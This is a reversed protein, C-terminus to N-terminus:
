RWGDPGRHWVTEALGHFRAGNWGRVRLLLQDEHHEILTYSQGEGARVRRSCATGSMVGIMRRGLRAQAAVHGHGCLVLDVGAREAARLARGVGLVLTERPRQPPRFVPHHLMLVKLDAAGRFAAAIRAVQRADVRGGKRLYPRASSLGAVQLAPTRVMPEPEDDVHRRYARLPWGFRGLVRYLPVDHNGPVATWPVGLEDLLGRAARFQAARARMTLDGSCLVRDLRQGALDERLGDVLRREAAGFHLDTVHALRM